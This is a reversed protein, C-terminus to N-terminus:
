EFISKIADDVDAAKGINPTVSEGRPMGFGSRGSTPQGRDMIDYSTAPVIEYEQRDTDYKDGLKEALFAEAEEFSSFEKAHSETSNDPFLFKNGAWDMIIWSSVDGDDENLIKEITKEVSEAKPAGEAGAAGEAGGKGKFLAGYKKEYEDMTEGLDALEEVAKAEGKYMRRAIDVLKGRKEANVGQAWPYDAWLRSLANIAKADEIVKEPHTALLYKAIGALPKMLVLLAKRKLEPDKEPEAKLPKRKTDGYGWWEKPGHKKEGEPKEEPKDAAEPM